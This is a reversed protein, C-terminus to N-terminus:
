SHILLMAGLAWFELIECWLNQQAGFEYYQAISICINDDASDGFLALTVCSISYVRTCRLGSVEAM